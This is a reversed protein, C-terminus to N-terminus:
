RAYEQQMLWIMALVCILSIGAMGWSVISHNHIAECANAYAMCSNVITTTLQFVTVFPQNTWRRKGTFIVRVEFSDVEVERFYRKHKRYFDEVTAANTTITTYKYFGKTGDPFTEMLHYPIPEYRGTDRDKIWVPYKM